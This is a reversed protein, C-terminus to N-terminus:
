SSYGFFVTEYHSSPIMKMRVQMAEPQVTYIIFQYVIQTQKKCLQRFSNSGLHFFSVQFNVLCRYINSQTSNMSKCPLM